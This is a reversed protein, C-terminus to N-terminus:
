FIPFIPPKLKFIPSFLFLSLFYSFYSFIPVPCGPITIKPLSIYTWGPVGICISLCFYPFHILLIINLMYFVNIHSFFWHIYLTNALWCYSTKRPTLLRTGNQSSQIKLQSHCNVFPYPILQHHVLPFTFCLFQSEDVM